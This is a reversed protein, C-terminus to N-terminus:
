ARGKVSQFKGLRLVVGREWQAAIRIGSVLIGWLIAFVVEIVAATIKMAETGQWLTSFLVVGLALVPVVFLLGRLSRGLSVHGRQPEAYVKQSPM